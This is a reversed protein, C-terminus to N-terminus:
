PHYRPDRLLSRLTRYAHTHWPVRMGRSHLQTASHDPPLSLAIQRILRLDLPTLSGGALSEGMCRDFYRDRALRSHPILMGNIQSRSNAHARRYHYARESLSVINAGGFLLSLSLICDEAHAIGAAQDFAHDFAALLPAKRAVMGTHAFGAFYATFRTKPLPIWPRTERGFTHMAPIIVDIATDEALAQAYRLYLAPELLDDSDVFAILDAKTALVGIRRAVFPGSRPKDTRLFTVRPHARGLGALRQRVPESSGDDVVVIELREREPTDELRALLAALHGADEWHPIVVALRAPSAAPIPPRALRFCAEAAEPTAPSPVCRARITHAVRPPFAALVRGLLREDEYVVHDAGRITELEAAYVFARHLTCTREGNDEDSIFGPSDLRVVIEPVLRHVLNHSVFYVGDGGAAPFEILRVSHDRLFAVISECLALAFNLETGGMNSAPPLRGPSVLIWTVRGSLAASVEPSPDKPVFAACRRGAAAHAALLRFARAGPGEPSPGVPERCVLAFDHHM